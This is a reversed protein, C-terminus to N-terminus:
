PTEELLTLPIRLYDIDGADGVETTVWRSHGTGDCHPCRNSESVTYEQDVEGDGKCYPCNALERLVARTTALDSATLAELVGEPIPTGDLSTRLKPAARSAAQHLPNLDTM